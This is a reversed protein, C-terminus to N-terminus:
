RSLGDRPRVRGTRRFAGVVGGDDVRRARRGRRRPLQVLRVRAGEPALEKVLARETPESLGYYLAYFLFLAATFWVDECLAFALYALASVVFAAALLRSRDYRDALQGGLNVLIVKAVHFASWLLPIRTAGM